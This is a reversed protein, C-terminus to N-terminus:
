RHLLPLYIFNDGVDVVSAVFAVNRAFESTNGKTLDTLDSSDTATATAIQGIQVSGIGINISFNGSGNATGKALYIKGEGYNDGPSSVSNKDSLFVEV